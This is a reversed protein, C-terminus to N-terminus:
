VVSLSGECQTPLVRRRKLCAWGAMAIGIGAIIMATPEPVIIFQTVTGTVPGSGFNVTQQTTTYSAALGSDYAPLLSYWVPAGETGVNFQQRQGVDGYQGAVWYRFQGNQLAAALNFTQEDVFFGGLYSGQAVPTGGMDFLVDVMNASTLSALFPTADTLRLVDNVSPSSGANWTPATGTIEFVWDTGLTPDVSGADGIGPSNGV